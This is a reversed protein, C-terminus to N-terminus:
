VTVGVGETVTGNTGNSAPAFNTIIGLMFIGTCASITAVGLPWAPVAEVM